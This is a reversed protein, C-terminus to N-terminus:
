NRRAITYHQIRFPLDGANSYTIAEKVLVSNLTTTVVSVKVRWASSKQSITRTPGDLNNCALPSPEMPLTREVPLLAERLSENRRFWHFVSTRQSRCSHNWRCPHAWAFVRRNSSVLGFDREIKERCQVQKTVYRNIGVSACSKLFPRAMPNRRMWRISDFLTHRQEM